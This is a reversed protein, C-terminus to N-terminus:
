PAQLLHYGVQGTQKSRHLRWGPLLVPPHARPTEQYIWAQPALHASLADCLQPLAAIEAFPPDLFVIDYRTTIPAALFLQAAGHWVHRPGSHGLLTLNQQLAEAARADREVFTVQAADRSLAELGLAGSGAFLDLCTAGAIHTQLWNFLTERIRDGTPRLGTVAPFTVRRGRWRGGILRLTNPAHSPPTM